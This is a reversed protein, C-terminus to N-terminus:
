GLECVRAVVAELKEPWARPLRDGRGHDLLLTPSRPLEDELEIGDLQLVKPQPQLVLTRDLGNVPAPRYVLPGGLSPRAFDGGGGFAGAQLRM